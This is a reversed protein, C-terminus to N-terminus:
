VLVRASKELDELYKKLSLYDKFKMNKPCPYVIRRTTIEEVIGKLTFMVMLM